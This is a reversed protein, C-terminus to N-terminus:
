TEISGLMNIEEILQFYPVIPGTHFWLSLLSLTVSLECCVQASLTNTLKKETYLRLSKCTHSQSHETIFNQSADLSLNKLKLISM